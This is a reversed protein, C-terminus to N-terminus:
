TRLEDIGDPILLEANDNRPNNVLRSVRIARMQEAPFPSTLRGLEDPALPGASLGANAKEGSLIVPM